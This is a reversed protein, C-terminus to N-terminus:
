HTFTGREPVETRSLREEPFRAANEMRKALFSSDGPLLFARIGYQRLLSDLDNDPCEGPLVRPDTVRVASLDPALWRVPMKWNRELVDREAADPIRITQKDLFVVNMLLFGNTVAHMVGILRKSSPQDSVCLALEVSGYKEILTILFEEPSEDPVLYMAIEHTAPMPPASQVTM